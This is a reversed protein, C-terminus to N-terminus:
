VQSQSAFPQFKHSSTSGTLKFHYKNSNQSRKLLINPFHTKATSSTGKLPKPLTNRSQNWVRRTSSLILDSQLFSLLNKMYQIKPNVHKKKKYSCLNLQQSHSVLGADHLQALGNRKFARVVVAEKLRLVTM